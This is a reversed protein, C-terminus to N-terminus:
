FLDNPLENPGDDNGDPADGDPAGDGETEDSEIDDTEMDFDPMYVARVVRRLPAPSGPEQVTRSVFIEISGDPLRGASFSEGQTRLEEELDALDWAGRSEIVRARKGSSLNGARVRLTQGIRGSVRSIWLPVRTTAGYYAYPSGATVSCSNKSDIVAKLGRYRGRRDYVERYSVDTESVIGGVMASGVLAGESHRLSVLRYCGDRGDVLTSLELPARTTARIANCANRPLPPRGPGNPPVPAPGNPGNPGPPPTPYPYNGIPRSSDSSCGSFLAVSLFGVSILSSVKM